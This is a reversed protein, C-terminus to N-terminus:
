GTKSVLEQGAGLLRAQARRVAEESLSTRVATPMSRWIRHAISGRSKGLARRELEWVYAIVISDDKLDERRTLARAQDPDLKVGERALRYRVAIAVESQIARNRGSPHRRRLGTHLLDGEFETASVEFSTDFFSALLHSFEELREAPLLEAPLEARRRQLWALCTRPRSLQQLSDPGLWEPDKSALRDICLLLRYALAQLHLLEGVPLRPM